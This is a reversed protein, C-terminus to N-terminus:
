VFLCFCVLSVETLEKIRVLSVGCCVRPYISAVRSVCVCVCVCAQPRQSNVSQMKGDRVTRGGPGWSCHAGPSTFRGDQDPVSLLINQKQINKRNPNKNSSVGQSCPSFMCVGCPFARSIAWRLLSPRPLVQGGSGVAGWALISGMVKKSHPPLALVQAVTGRIYVTYIYMCMDIYCMMM